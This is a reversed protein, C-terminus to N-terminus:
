TLFELGFISPAGYMGSLVISRMTSMGGAFFLVGRIEPFQWRCEGWVQAMFAHEAQQHNASPLPISGSLTCHM